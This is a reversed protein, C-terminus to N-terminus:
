HLRAPLGASCRAACSHLVHLSPPHKTRAKVHKAADPPAGRLRPIERWLEHQRGLHMLAGAPAGAAAADADASGAADAPAAVALLVARAAGAGTEGLWVTATDFLAGAGARQTPVGLRELVSVGHLAPTAASSGGDAAGGGSGRLLLAVTVGAPPPM